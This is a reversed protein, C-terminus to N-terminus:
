CAWLYVSVWVTFCRGNALKLLRTTSLARPWLPGAMPLALAWDQWSLTTETVPFRSAPWCLYGQSSIVLAAIDEMPIKLALGSLLLIMLTTLIAIRPHTFICLMLSLIPIPYLEVSIQPQLDTMMTLGAVAAIMLCAILGSYAPKFYTRHEFWFIYSWVIGMLCVALLVIGAVAVLGNQGSIGGMKMLAARQVDTIRESRKVILDGKNYVEIVPKVHSVAIERAEETSQEDIILTPRIKSNLIAVLAEEDDARLSTNRHIADRILYERNFRLEDSRIGRAILTKLAASAGDYLQKWHPTEILTQLVTQRPMDRETWLTTLESLKAATSLRRNERISEINELLDMLRETVMRESMASRQYVPAVLERAEYQLRHTESKDEIELLRDAYIDRPSVNVQIINGPTLYRTTFIVVILLISMVAIFISGGVETFLTSKLRQRLRQLRNKVRNSFPNVRKAPSEASGAPSM